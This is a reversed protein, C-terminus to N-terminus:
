GLATVGRYITLVDSEINADNQLRRKVKESMLFSMRIPAITAIKFFIDLARKKLSWNLEATVKQPDICFM